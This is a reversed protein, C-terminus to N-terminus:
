DLTFEQGFNAGDTLAHSDIQTASIMRELTRMEDALTIRRVEMKQLENRIVAVRQPGYEQVARILNFDPGFSESLSFPIKPLQYAQFEDTHFDVAPLSAIPAPRHRLKLM